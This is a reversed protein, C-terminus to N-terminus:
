AEGGSLVDRLRQNSQRLNEIAVRVAMSKM